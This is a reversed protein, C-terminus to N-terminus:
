KGVEKRAESVLRCLTQLSADQPTIPLRRKRDEDSFQITVFGQDGSFWLTARAVWDEDSWASAFIVKAKRLQVGAGYSLSGAIVRPASMQAQNSTDNKKTAHQAM